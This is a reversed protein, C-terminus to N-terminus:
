IAIPELERTFFVTDIAMLPFREPLASVDIEDFGHRAYFRQAGVMVSTTGLTLRTIGVSRCWEILHDLLRSALGSAGRHTSAVFMKRVTGHGPEFVRVAITAVVEGADSAVWFEGGDTRYASDIDFLDPQREADIDLDFEGQQIGVILAIVDDRDAVTWPLVDITM